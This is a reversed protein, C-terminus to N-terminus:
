TVPLAGLFVPIVGEHRQKKNVVNPARPLPVGEPFRQHAVGAGSHCSTNVRASSVASPEADLLDGAHLYASGEGRAEVSCGNAARLGM